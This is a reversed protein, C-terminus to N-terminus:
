MLQDVATRLLRLKIKKCIKKYNDNWDLNEIVNFDKITKVKELESLGMIIKKQEDIDPYVFPISNIKKQNIIPLTTQFLDTYFLERHSLLYYYAYEVHIKKSLQIGTIQQNSSAIIKLISIRGVDGIANILITDPEFITAQKMEVAYKSLKDKASTLYKESGIENPKFWDLFDDEYFRKEQKSPTKGTKIEIIEKGLTTKTAKTKLQNFIYRAVNITPSKEFQRYKEATTM